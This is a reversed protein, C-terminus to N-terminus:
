PLSTSSGASGASACEASWRGVCTSCPIWTPACFRRGNSPTMKHLMADATCGANNVLINFPGVHEEIQVVGEACAEFDSVDSGFCPRDHGSRYARAGAITRSTVVTKCGAAELADAAAAGLGTTGGTVLALRKM